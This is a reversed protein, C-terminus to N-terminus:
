CCVALAFRRSAVRIKPGLEPLFLGLDYALAFSQLFLSVLVHM